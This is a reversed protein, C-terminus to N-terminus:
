KKKDKKFERWLSYCIAVRQKDDPHKKNMEKSGACRSIFDQQEEGHRPAPM